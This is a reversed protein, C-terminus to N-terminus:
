APTLWGLAALPQFPGPTQSSLFSPRITVEPSQRAHRPVGSVEARVGGPLGAPAKQSFSQLEGQSALFCPCLALCDALQCPRADRPTWGRFPWGRSGSGPRELSPLRTSGRPPGAPRLSWCVARTLLSSHSSPPVLSCVSVSLAWPGLHNHPSFPRPHPHPQPLADGFLRPSLSPRGPSSLTQTVAASPVGLSQCFDVGRATGLSSSCSFLDWRCDPWLLGLEVSIAEAVAVWLGGRAASLPGLDLSGEM